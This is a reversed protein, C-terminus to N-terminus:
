WRRRRGRRGPPAARGGPPPGSRGKGVPAEPSGGGGGRPSVRQAGAGASVARNRQSAPESARESARPHLSSWTCVVAPRRQCSRLQLRILGVNQSGGTGKPTKRARSRVSALVASERAVAAVSNAEATQKGCLNRILQGPWGVETRLPAPVVLWDWCEPRKVGIGTAHAARLERGWFGSKTWKALLTWKHPAGFNKREPRIAGCARRISNTPSLGDRSPKPKPNTPNM